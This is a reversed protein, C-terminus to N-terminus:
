GAADGAQGPPRDTEVPKSGAPPLGAGAPAVAAKAGSLNAHTGLPKKAPGKATAELTAEIAAIRKEIRDLPDLKAELRALRDDSPAGFLVTDIDEALFTEEPVRLIRAVERRLAGQMAMQGREVRGLDHKGFGEAALLKGLETQSLRRLERIAKLRRDLEEQDLM